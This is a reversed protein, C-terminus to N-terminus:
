FSKYSFPIKQVILREKSKKIQVFHLHLRALLFLATTLDTPKELADLTLDIGAPLPLYKVEFAVPAFRSVAVAPVGAGVGAGVGVGVGAGVGAGVGTAVL